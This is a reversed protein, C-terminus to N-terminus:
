DFPIDQGGITSSFGDQVQDESPLGAVRDAPELTQALRSPGATSGMASKKRGSADDGGDFYDEKERVHSVM